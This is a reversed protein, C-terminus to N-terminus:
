YYSPVLMGYELISGYPKDGKTGANEHVTMQKFLAPSNSSTTTPKSVSISMRANSTIRGNCYDM